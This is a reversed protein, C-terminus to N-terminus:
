LSGLVLAFCHFWKLFINREREWELRWLGCARFLVMEFGGKRFCRHIEVVVISIVSRFMWIWLVWIGKVQERECELGWFGCTRFLVMEIYSIKNRINQDEMSKNVISQNFIIYIKVPGPFIWITILPHKIDCPSHSLTAWPQIFGHHTSGNLEKHFPM